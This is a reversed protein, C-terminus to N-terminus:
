DMSQGNNLAVLMTQRYEQPTQESFFFHVPELYRGRFIVEYHLHPAFSSGSNGVLAIRSGQRVKQGKRVFMNGLHTYRTVYGNGHDITIANGEKSSSRSVEKVEGDAAALVDTQEPVVIDIGNHERLTKYLPHMKKGTSAGAKSPNFGHVPIVSPINGAIVHGSSLVKMINEIKVRCEASRGSLSHIKEAMHRSYGFTAVSDADNSFAPNDEPIELSPPYAEFINHYIERDREQLGAVVNELREVNEEMADYEERILESELAMRKEEETSFVSALLLYILCSIAMSALLFFLTRRFFRKVGDNLGNREM